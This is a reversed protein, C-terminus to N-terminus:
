VHARGIEGTPRASVSLVAARVSSVARDAWRTPAERMARLLAGRLATLDGPRITDDAGADLFATIGRTTWRPRVVVVFAGALGKILRVSDISDEFSPMEVLVVPLTAAKADAAAVNSNRHLVVGQRPAIRELTSLLTATPEASSLLFIAHPFEDPEEVSLDEVAGVSRVVPAGLKM